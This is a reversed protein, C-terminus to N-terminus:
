TALALREVATLEVSGFLRGAMWERTQEVWYNHRKIEGKM